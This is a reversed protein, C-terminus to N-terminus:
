IIRMKRRDDFKLYLDWINDCLPSPGRGKSRRYKRGLYNDEFYNGLEKTENPQYQPLKGLVKSILLLNLM